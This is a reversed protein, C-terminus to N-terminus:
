SYWGDACQWTARPTVARVTLRDTSVNKAHFDHTTNNGSKGVTKQKPKRRSKKSEGPDPRRADKKRKGAITHSPEYREPRTKHRPRRAYRQPSNNISSPCSYTSRLDEGETHDNADREAFHNCQNPSASAARHLPELLSSDSTDHVRRKRRPASDVHNSRVLEPSHKPTPEPQVTETLWKRIDM